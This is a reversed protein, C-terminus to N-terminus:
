SVNFVEPTYPLRFGVDTEDPLTAPDDKQFLNLVVTPDFVYRIRDNTTTPTGTSNFTTTAWKNMWETVAGKAATAGTGADNVLATQNESISGQFNISYNYRSYRTVAQRENGEIVGDRDLDAYEGIDWNGNAPNNDLYEGPDATPVLPNANALDLYTQQPAGTADFTGRIRPDFNPGPIVFWSGTQAYVFANVDFRYAPGIRQVQNDNNVLTVDEVKISNLRFAPLPNTAPNVNIIGPTQRLVLSYEGAAINGVSRTDITSNAADTQYFGQDVTTLDESGAADVDFGFQTTQEYGPLAPSPPAPNYRENTTSNFDGNVFFRVSTAMPVQFLTTSINKRHEGTTPITNPSALATNYDRRHGVSSLYHFPLLGYSGNAAATYTWSEGATTDRHITTPLDISTAVSGITHGPPPPTNPFSDFNSPNTGEVRIIKDAADVNSATNLVAPPAAPNPVTKNSFIVTAPKPLLLPVTNDDARIGLGNIRNASMNFAFRPGTLTPANFRRQVIDTPSNVANFGTTGAIQPASTSSRLATGAAIVGSTLPTINLTTANIGKIIGQVPPIQSNEVVENIAFGRTDEVEVTVDQSVQPLPLAVFTATNTTLTQVDPRGLVRTPNMVVNRRAMLLPKRLQGVDVGDTADDISLSDEIYINNMSVVTLSRPVNLARGKIRVNGEAFVVGNAPWPLAVRYVGNRLNGNADKWSKTLDPGIAATPRTTTNDSRADRTIILGPEIPNINLPPPNIDSVIEIEVGRARFEDPGVWGRLHQEELSVNLTAPAAIPTAALPIRVFRGTAGTPSLWMKVLETQTMERLGIDLVGNGNGDETDLSGNANADEGADLVGNGNTDETDLVGDADADENLREKDQANDIYIGEGYGYFSAQSTSSKSFRTLGRYRELNEGSDIVPPTFNTVNRTNGNTVKGALQNWNDSVLQYNGTAPVSFIGNDSSPQLTGSPGTAGATNFSIQPTAVNDFAMVGSNYIVGPAQSSAPTTPARLKLADLQGSWVLGENVRAGDVQNTLATNAADSFSVTTSFATPATAPNNDLDVGVSSGLNAALEVRDGIGVTTTAAALTLVFTGPATTSVSSVVASRAPTGLRPNSITITFPTGLRSFNGQAQTIGLLAPNGTGNGATPNGQAVLSRRTLFDWNSVTRMMQAIPANKYGGFYATSRSYATPDEPSLGIISIRTAGLLDPNNLDPDTIPLSNDVREVKALFQPGALQNTANRPDPFKAYSGAWGQARDLATYYASYGPDNPGPIQSVSTPRWRPGDGSYALQNRVYDVGARASVVARNKDTQRATQNLNVSVLAIFSASLLAAFIMILVALLLAQGRRPQHSQLSTQRM